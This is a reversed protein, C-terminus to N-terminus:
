AGLARLTRALDSLRDGHYVRIRHLAYRESRRALGPSVALAARYGAGKVAAEVRRDYSGSPYCFNHVPVHFWRRYLRRSVAVEYRLRSSSAATLNVHSITHSALEWGAAIMRKVMAPSLGGSWRLNLGALNLVGPWGMRRLLPFAVKYQSRYGDDFTLVVPRRPLTGHHFWADEVQSLTVAQFGHRRLFEIQRRFTRPGVYLDRDPIGAYDSQILHYMLVPVPGTHPRWGPHSIVAAALPDRAASAVALAASRRADDGRGSGTLAGVLLGALAAVAALIGLAVM